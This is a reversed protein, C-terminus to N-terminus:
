HWSWYDKNTDMHEMTVDTQFKVKTEMADLHVARAGKDLEDSLMHKMTKLATLGVVYKHMIDASIPLDPSTATHMLENFYLDLELWVQKNTKVQTLTGISPIVHARMVVDMSKFVCAHSDHLSTILQSLEEYNYIQSQIHAKLEVARPKMMKPLHLPAGKYRM